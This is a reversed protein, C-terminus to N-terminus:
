PQKAAIDSTPTSSQVPIIGGPSPPQQGTASVVAAMQQASIPDPPIRTSTFRTPINRSLHRHERAVHRRVTNNRTFTRPCYPCSVRIGQHRQRIHARLNTEYGYTRECFPCRLKTGTGNEPDRVHSALRVYDSASFGQALTVPIPLTRAHQQALRRFTELNNAATRVEEDNLGAPNRGPPPPSMDNLRSTDERSNRFDPFKNNHIDDTNSEPECHESVRQLREKYARSLIGGGSNLDTSSPPNNSSTTTSDSPFSPPQQQKTDEEFEEPKSNSSPRIIMPSSAPYQEEHEEERKSAASPPRLPPSPKSSYREGRPSSKHFNTSSSPLNNSAAAAASAAIAAAAVAEVPRGAFNPLRYMPFQERPYYNPSNHHHPPSRPPSEERERKKRMLPPSHPPGGSNVPSWSRSSTSAAGGGMHLNNQNNIEINRPGESLGKVQLVEATKLVSNIRDHHLYAEGRYMFHLLIQLDDARTGDLIVFFQNNSPANIPAHSFLSEFHTSCAALVLRHAKFTQGECFLTVDSLTESELLGHFATLINTEYKSWKLKYKESGMKRM